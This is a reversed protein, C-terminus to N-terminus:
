AQVEAAAVHHQEQIPQILQCSRLLFRDGGPDARQQSLKRFDLDDGSAWFISVVSQDLCTQGRDRDGRPCCVILPQEEVAPRAGPLLM